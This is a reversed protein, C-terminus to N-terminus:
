EIQYRSLEIKTVIIGKTKYIVCNRKINIGVNKVVHPKITKPILLFCKAVIEAVSINEGVEKERVIYVM